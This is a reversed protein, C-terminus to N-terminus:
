SGDGSAHQLVCVHNAEAEETISFQMDSLSHGAFDMRVVDDGGDQEFDLLPSYTIIIFSLRHHSGSV